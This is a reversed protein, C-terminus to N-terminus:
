GEGVGFGFEGEVFEEVGHAIAVDGKRGVAVGDDDFGVAGVPVLFDEAGVEPEVAVVDFREDLERLGAVVGFGFPRGVAAPDGEEGLALGGGFFIGVVVVGLFFGFVIFSLGGLDIQDRGGAALGNREGGAFFFDVGVGPGGVRVGEVEGRAVRPGLGLFVGVFLLPLIDHLVAGGLAAVSEEGEVDGGGEGAVGGSRCLWIFFIFIFLLWLGFGGLMGVESGSGASDGSKREADLVEDGRGVAAFESEDRVGDIM